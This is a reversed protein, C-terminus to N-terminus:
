TFLTFLTFNGLVTKVMNMIYPDNAPRQDQFVFVYYKDDVREM